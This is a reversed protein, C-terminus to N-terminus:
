LADFRSKIDYSATPDAAITDIQPRAYSGLRTRQAFALILLVASVAVFTLALNPSGLCWALVAGVGLPVQVAHQRDVLALSLHHRAARLQGPAHDPAQVLEHGVLVLVLHRPQEQLVLPGGPQPLREDLRADPVFQM